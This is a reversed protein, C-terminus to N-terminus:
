VISVLNSIKSAIAVQLPQQPDLGLKASAINRPRSFSSDAELKKPSWFVASMDKFPQSDSSVCIVGIVSSNDDYFPTNTACVQVKEGSKNLLPFQGTWSEGMIVRDIINHAIAYDQPDM